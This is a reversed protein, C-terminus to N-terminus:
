PPFGRCQSLRRPRVGCAHWRSGSYRLWWGQGQCVSASVNWEYLFLYVRCYVSVSECKPPLKLQIHSALIKLLLVFSTMSEGQGLCVNSKMSIFCRDSLVPCVCGSLIESILTCHVSMWRQSMCHNTLCKTLNSRCSFDIVKLQSLELM